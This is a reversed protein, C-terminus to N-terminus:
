QTAMVHESVQVPLKKRAGVGGDRDLVAPENKAVTDVFDPADDPTAQELRLSV